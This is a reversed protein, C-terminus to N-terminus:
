GPAAANRNSLWPSPLSPPLPRSKSQDRIGAPRTLGTIRAPPRSAPLTNSATSRVSGQPTSTDLPMSVEGPILSPSRMRSNTSSTRRASQWTSGSMSAPAGPAALALPIPVHAVRIWRARRRGRRDVVVGPGIRAAVEAAVAPAEDGFGQDPRQLFQRRGVVGRARVGPEDLGEVPVQRMVDAPRARDVLGRAQRGTGPARADQELALVQVVGARVLDVVGDALRQQGAAHALAPDDGLGAGALVAHR